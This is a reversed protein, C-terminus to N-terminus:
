VLQSAALGYQSVAGGPSTLSVVCKDHGPKALNVIVSVQKRLLELKSVMLDGHFEIFFTVPRYKKRIEKVPMGAEIDKKIRKELEERNKKEKEKADKIQKKSAEKFEKMQGVVDMRTRLLANEANLCGKEYRDNLRRLRVKVEKHNPDGRSSGTSTGSGGIDFLGDTAM